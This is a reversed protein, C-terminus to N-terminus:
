ILIHVRIELKLFAFFFFLSFLPETNYSNTKSVKNIDEEMSPLLDAYVWTCIVILRAAQELSINNGVMCSFGGNSYLCILGGFYDLEM